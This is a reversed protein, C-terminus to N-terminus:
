PEGPIAISRAAVCGAARANRVAIACELGDRGALTLSRVATGFRGVLWSPVHGQGPNWVLVSGPAPTEDAMELLLETTRGLTDFDPLSWVTDLGYTVGRATFDQRTRLYPAIDDREAATERIPSAPQFHFVGYDRTVEEHRIVGGLAAIAGRAFDVLPAVIVIAAIGTETLASAAHRIMSTLVPAGAKAPLNSLVLDFRGDGLGHFALACECRVGDLGNARCNEGAFAVALADRDQMTVGVGPVAAKVCTGIVGVGCGVDLATRVGGLDVDRAVTKLLLRTGEDIDFSSFLAHSLHFGLDRGCFRFPVTKNIFPAIRPDAPPAGSLAERPMVTLIVTTVYRNVLRKM